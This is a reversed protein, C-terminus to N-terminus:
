AAYYIYPTYFTNFIPPPAQDWIITLQGKLISYTHLLLLFQWQSAWQAGGKQSLAPKPPLTSLPGILCAPLDTATVGCSHNIVNWTM